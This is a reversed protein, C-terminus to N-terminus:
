HGPMDSNNLLHGTYWHFSLPLKCLPPPSLSSGFLGDMMVGAPLCSAKNVIGGKGTAKGKLKLIGLHVSLFVLEEEKNLFCCCCFVLLMLGLIVM